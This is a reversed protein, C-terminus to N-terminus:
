CCWGSGPPMTMTPAEQRLLALRDQNDDLFQQEHEVKVEYRVQQLPEECALDAVAIEAETAQLADLDAQFAADIHEHGGLARLRNLLPNAIGGLYAHIEDQDSFSHGRKAMCASWEATAEAIRPDADVREQLAALEDELALYIVGPRSIETQAHHVCDRRHSEWAEFESQSMSDRIADNPDVYGHEFVEPADISDAYGYGHTSMYDEEDVSPTVAARAASKAAWDIMAYRFGQETMCDYKMQEIAAMPDSFDHDPFAETRLDALFAGLPSGRQEDAEEEASNDDGAEGGPDNEDSDGGGDDSQDEASDPDEAHAGEAVAQADEAAAEASREASVGEATQSESGTDSCGAALVVAVVAAALWLAWRICRVM